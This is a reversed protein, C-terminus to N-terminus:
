GPCAKSTYKSQFPEDLWQNANGSLAKAIETGNQVLSSNQPLRHLDIKGIKNAARVM